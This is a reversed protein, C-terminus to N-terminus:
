KATTVPLSTVTRLFATIEGMREASPPLCDALEYPIELNRYTEIGLRHYPLLEIGSIGGCSECFAATDRLNERGDNQGPIVPIRVLIEPRDKSGCLKQINELIRRNGSGTLERHRDSDMHKIDVYLLNIYPLVQSINKWPVSLSTEVATHIGRSRCLRLVEAAFEPQDMVEGGSLTVGGGSHFYFVEDRAAIKAAEEATMWTGYQKQAGEPCVAVCAFCSRCKERDWQIKGDAISMAGAPCVAACAGCGRCLRAAFGKEPQFRQSEPTSCWRCCLGCGKLFLVTRLGPGDHISAGEYRLVVGRIEEM